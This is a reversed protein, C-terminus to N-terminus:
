PETDKIGSNYLSLLMCTYAAKENNKPQEAFVEIHLKKNNVSVIGVDAPPEAKTDAKHKVIIVFVDNEEMYAEDFDQSLEKFSRGSSVDDLGYKGANDTYFKGIMGAKSARFLVPSSLDLGEKSLECYSINFSLHEPTYESVEESAEETSEDASEDTSQQVSSEATSEQSSSSEDSVSDTQTSEEASVTSETDSEAASDSSSESPNEDSSSVASTDTVPSGDQRYERGTCATLSCILAGSLLLASLRKKM